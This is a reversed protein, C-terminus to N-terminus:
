TTPTILVVCIMISLPYIDIVLLFRFCVHCVDTVVADRPLRENLSDVRLCQPPNALKRPLEDPLDCVHHVQPIVCLDHCTTYEAPVCRPRCPNRSHLAQQHPAPLVWVWAGVVMARGLQSCAHGSDLILLAFWPHLVQISVNVM